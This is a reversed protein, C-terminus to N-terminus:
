KKYAIEKSSNHNVKPTQLLGLRELERRIILAAQARPERVEREAIAFLADRENTNLTIIIRAM